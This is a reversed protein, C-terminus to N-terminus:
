CGAPNSWLTVNSGRRATSGGGPSQRWIRGAESSGSPDCDRVLVPEFGAQRVISSGRASSEGVVNPVTGDSPPEPTARPQGPGASPAPTRAGPPPSVQLPLENVALCITITSGGSAQSGASPTQKVVMGEPRGPALCESVRVSFGAGTLVDIAQDRDLGIVGPVDAVPPPTSSRNSTFFTSPPPPFRTAPINELAKTMFYQWIMSPFSGGVIRFPYGNAPTMEECGGRGCIPNGVWVVAALDPTYGAFWADRWQQSTGTKGAADRGLRARIGTGRQIVQQMVHTVARAVGPAMAREPRENEEAADYLVKGAADTIRVIATPPVAVGDNAFTAYATAMELPSAEKAGLAIAPVDDAPTCGGTKGFNSGCAAQVQQRTPFPIGMRRAMDAVRRSGTLADGEGVGDIELRAYSANVSHVTAEILNSAGSSGEYNRIRWTGGKYRHTFEGGSFHSNLTVGRELAAALVIPKFSSGPQRGSGGGYDGLALNVKSLRCVHRDPEEDEGCGEPYYDRGGVLARVYGTGPEVAAMAASLRDLKEPLVSAVAEEAATQAAPDLSTYIRLGGRYVNKSREEFTAGLFDFREDLLQHRSNRLVGLQRLVMDVFYPYRWRAETPDALEIPSAKAAAAEEPTIMALQEMRSLVTDRRRQAAEQRQSRREPADTSTWGYRAPQNIIGALFAGEPLDLDKAEKGFYSRAATQIGYVGRGFYITNLYMELIERKEYRQELQVTVQAEALKRQVTREPDPFYLTKALQQSITSGGQIQANEEGAEGLNSVAARTISRADIGAHRWFREDEIAVVADRVHQPIEDLPIIERNIEGHLDAILSRDAAYVKTTAVNLRELAEETTLPQLEGCATALMLLALVSALRAHARRCPRRTTSTVGISFWVGVVESSM